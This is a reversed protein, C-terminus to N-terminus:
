KLPVGFVQVWYYKYTSKQDAVFALGIDVYEPRLLTKRHGPSKLWDEIAEEVNLQGAALNEGIMRWKYGFKTARHGADEGNKDTHGFYNHAAMDQAMWKAAQSLKENFRLQPAGHKSREANTAEFVGQVMRTEVKAWAESESVVATKPGGQPISACALVGFLALASLARGHTVSRQTM